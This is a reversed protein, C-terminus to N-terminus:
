GATRGGGARRDLEEEICRRCNGFITDSWGVSALVTEADAHDCRSEGNYTRFLVVGEIPERREIAGVIRRLCSDCSWFVRADPPREAKRCLDCRLHRRLGDQERVYPMVRPFALCDKLLDLMRWRTQESLEQLRGTPDVGRQNLELYIARVSEVAKLVRAGTPLEYDFVGVDRLAVCLDDLLTPTDREHPPPPPPTDHM